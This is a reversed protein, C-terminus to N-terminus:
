TLALKYTSSLFFESATKTGKPIRWHYEWYSWFHGLISQDRLTEVNEM